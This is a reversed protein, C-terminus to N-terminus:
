LVHTNKSPRPIRCNTATLNCSRMHKFLEALFRYNRQKGTIGRNGQLEGTERCNGQKGAIEVYSYYCNVTERCDGQKGAIERNGQLKGTERYNRQLALRVFIWMRNWCKLLPRLFNRPRRVFIVVESHAYCLAKECSLAGFYVPTWYGKFPFM